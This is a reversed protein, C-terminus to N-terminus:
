SLLYLIFKIFVIKCLFIEWWNSFFNYYMNGEFYLKRGDDIKQYTGLFFVYKQNSTDNFIHM